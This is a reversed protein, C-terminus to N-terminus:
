FFLATSSAATVLLTSVFLAAVFTSFTRVLSGSMSLRGYNRLRMPQRVERGGPSAVPELEAVAIVHPAVPLSYNSWYPACHSSVAAAAIGGPRLIASAMTGM